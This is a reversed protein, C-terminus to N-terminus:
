YHYMQEMQNYIVGLAYTSFVPSSFIHGPSYDTRTKYKLHEPRSAFVVVQALNVIFHSQGPAGGDWYPSYNCGQFGLHRNRLAWVHM